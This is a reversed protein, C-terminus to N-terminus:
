SALVFTVMMKVRYETVKGDDCVLEQDKIWAGSIGKLTKNARKLGKKMADEFSVKSAASIETVRAVSM